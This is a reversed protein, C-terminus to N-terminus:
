LKYFTIHFRVEYSKLVDPLRLKGTKPLTFIYTTMRALINMMFAMYFVGKKGRKYVAM